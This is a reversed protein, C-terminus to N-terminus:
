VRRGPIHRQWLQYLVPHRRRLRHSSISLLAHNQFARRSALRAQGPPEDTTLERALLFTPYATKIPQVLPAGDYESDDQDHRYEANFAVNRWPSTDFGARFDGSQGSFATHQLFVAKNLIDQPSSFQDYQGINQQEMRAEAYLGTFPIKSYRLALNEELSAEDYDSTVTFPIYSNGFPPPLTQQDFTGAGIGHQRTLDAQM